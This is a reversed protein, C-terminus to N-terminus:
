LVAELQERIQAQAKTLLVHLTTCERIQKYCADRDEPYDKIQDRLLQKHACTCAKLLSVQDEDMEMIAKHPTELVPWIPANMAANAEASPVLPAADVIQTITPQIKQYAAYAIDYRRLAVLYATRAVEYVGNLIKGQDFDKRIPDFVQIAANFLRNERHYTDTIEQNTM